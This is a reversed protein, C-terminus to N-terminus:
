RSLVKMILLVMAACTQKLVNRMKKFVAKSWSFHYNADVREYTVAADLEETFAPACDYLLYINKCFAYSENGGNTNLGGCAECMSKTWHYGTYTANVGPKGDLITGTGSGDLLTGDSFGINRVLASQGDRSYEPTRWVTIASDMGCLFCHATEHTVVANVDLENTRNSASLWHEAPDHYGDEQGALATLPLLSLALLMALLLALLRHAASTKKHM